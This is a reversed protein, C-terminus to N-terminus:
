HPAASFEDTFVLRVGRMYKLCDITEHSEGPGCLSPAIRVLIDRSQNVVNLELLISISNHEINHNRLLDDLFDGRAALFTGCM